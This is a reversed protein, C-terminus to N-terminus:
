MSMASSMRQMKSPRIRLFVAFGAPTTTHYTPRLTEPVLNISGRAGLGISAGKLALFDRTAGLSIERITFLQTPEGGLFGLDDADKQVQEARGFLSLHETVDVDSEVLVSSSVHYSKPTLTSHDHERPGHHHINLGWIVSNSWNRNADGFLSSTTLISAGYRQMGINPELPDHSYIYGGYAAVAVNSTPLVTLRGSYSDLRADRYDINYHYQDQERGNFVSGELKAFRSYVGGTVVGDSEHSADQWHHGLPAFPDDAGSARHMYAVPGLSPEGVAAVYLSAALGGGLAHDYATSLEMLLDNSHQDNVVRADRYSEGTQLLEPYGITPLTLAEFSTMGTFRLVGGGLSHAAMLMEWDILGLDASGRYGNQHDYEPFAVGHLMLTWAGLTAHDAYM